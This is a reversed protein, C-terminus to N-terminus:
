TTHLVGSELIVKGTRPMHKGTLGVSSDTPSYPLGPVGDGASGKVWVRVRSCRTIPVFRREFHCCSTQRIRAKAERVDPTKLGHRRVWMGRVPWGGFLWVVLVASLSLPLRRFLAIGSFQTLATKM